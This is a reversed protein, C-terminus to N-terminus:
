YNNSLILIYVIVIKRWLFLDEGNKKWMKKKKKVLGFNEEKNKRIKTDNQQVRHPPFPPRVAIILAALEM